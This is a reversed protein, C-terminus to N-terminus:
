SLSGQGVDILRELDRGDKAMRQRGVDYIHLSDGQEVRKFWHGRSSLLFSTEKDKQAKQSCLKTLDQWM